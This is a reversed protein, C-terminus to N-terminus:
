IVNKMIKESQRRFNEAQKTFMLIKPTFPNCIFGHHKLEKDKNSSLRSLEICFCQKLDRVIVLINHDWTGVHQSTSSYYKSFNAIYLFLKRNMLITFPYHWSISSLYVLNWTSSRFFEPNGSCIQLYKLTLKWSKSKLFWAASQCQHDTIVQWQFFCTSLVTGIAFFEFFHPLWGALLTVILKKMQPTVYRNFFWDYMYLVSPHSQDVTTVWWGCLLQWILFRCLKKKHDFCSFPMLLM